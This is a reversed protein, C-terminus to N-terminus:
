APAGAPGIDEILLTNSTVTGNFTIGNVALYAVNILFTSTTTTTSAFLSTFSIPYSATGAILPTDLYVINSGDRRLYMAVQNTSGSTNVMRATFTFRYTRNAFVSASFSIATNGTTTSTLDTAGSYSGIRGWPANWGPGRRWGGTAGHYVYLGENADGSDIFAVMGAVPSTIATDRATTSVFYQVSQSACYNNLDAATLVSSATFNKYGSGM